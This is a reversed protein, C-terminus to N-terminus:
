EGARKKNKHLNKPASERLSAFLGTENRTRCQLSGQGQTNKEQVRGSQWLVCCMNFRDSTVYVTLEIARGGELWPTSSLVSSGPDDRRVGDPRFWVTTGVDRTTLTVAGTLLNHKVNKSFAGHVWLDGTQGSEEAV